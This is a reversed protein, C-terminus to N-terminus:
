KVTLTGEMGGERHGEVTCFYQYKGPKLDASLESTGGQPVVEGKEDVGNGQLAIDHPTSAPNEMKITLAGAPATAQKSAYALGAEAAPMELTGAKAAIPKNSAGQVATKLLGEDEGPKAVSEAVYAAVNEADRGTVLDAPM